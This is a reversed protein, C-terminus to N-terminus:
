RWFIFREWWHRKKTPQESDDTSLVQGADQNEETSDLDDELNVDDYLLGGQQNALRGATIAEGSLRGAWRIENEKIFYHSKCDLNHSGISPLLTISEGDFTLKWGRKRIPTVIENGCGCACLHAVSAYQMSVYLKGEELSEPFSEVFVHNLRM